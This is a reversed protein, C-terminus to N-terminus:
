GTVIDCRFAFVEGSSKAALSDEIGAGATFTL